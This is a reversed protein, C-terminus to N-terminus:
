TEVSGQSFISMAFKSGNLRQLAFRWFEDWRLQPELNNLFPANLEIGSDRAVPFVGVNRKSLQQDSM